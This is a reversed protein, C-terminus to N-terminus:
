NCQHSFSDTPEPLSELPALGCIAGLVRKLNSERHQKSILVFLILPRLMCPRQGISGSSEVLTTLISAENNNIGIQM